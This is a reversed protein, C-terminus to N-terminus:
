DYVRYARERVGGRDNWAHVDGAPAFCLLISMPSVHGHFGRQELGM